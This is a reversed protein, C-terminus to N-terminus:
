SRVGKHEKLDKHHLEREGVDATLKAIARTLWNRLEIVDELSHRNGTGKPFTSEVRSFVHDDDFWFVTADCSMNCAIEIEQEFTEATGEETSKAIKTTLDAKM